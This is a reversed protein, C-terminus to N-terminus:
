LALVAEEAPRRRPAPLPAAQLRALVRGRAADLADVPDPNFKRAFFRDSQALAPLDGEVFPRPHSGVFESVHHSSPAIIFGSNGLLTPFLIEDCLDLGLLYPVLHCTQEQRVLYECVDRRLCFWLCGVFPTVGDQFPHDDLFGARAALHVQRGLWQLTSLGAGLGPPQHIGLNAQQTAVPDEGLYWRRSRRLLRAAPRGARCFVRHGHSMMVR